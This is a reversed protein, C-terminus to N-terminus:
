ADRNRAIADLVYRGPGAAIDLIRIPKGQESLQRIAIDIMEEAHVKRQRIGRWGPSDLYGRDIWKGVGLWGEAQNRYVHDLSEGSDFGTEWGIRVGRSLRGLTYLMLWQLAYYWRKPSWIPLKCALEDFVRQTYSSQDAE